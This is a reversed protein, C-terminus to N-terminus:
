ARFIGLSAGSLGQLRPVRFPGDLMQGQREFDFFRDVSPETKNALSDDCSKRLVAGPNRLPAFLGRHRRCTCLYDCRLTSKATISRIGLTGLELLAGRGGAGLASTSGASRFPRKPTKECFDPCDGADLIGTLLQTDVERIESCQHGCPRCLGRVRNASIMVWSRRSAPRMMSSVLPSSADIRGLLILLCAIARSRTAAASRSSIWGQQRRRLDQM